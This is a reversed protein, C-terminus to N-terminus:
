EHNNVGKNIFDEIFLYDNDFEWHCNPCLQVVNDEHNVIKLKTDESFSNVAKIHCLEVHNSYNCNKCPLKTLHKLWIRCLLRVHVNQWSAHKGKVSKKNRYEKLTKEKLPSEIKTDKHEICLKASSKYVINACEKRSCQKIRKRKKRPLNRNNYITACSVSCFKPNLTTKDCEPNLCINM